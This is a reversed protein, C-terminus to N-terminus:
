LASNLKKILLARLYTLSVASAPNHPMLKKIFVTSNLRSHRANRLKSLEACTKLAMILGLRSPFTHRFLLADTGPFARGIRM